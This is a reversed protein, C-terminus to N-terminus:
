AGEEEYLKAIAAIVTIRGLRSLPKLAKLVKGMAEAREDVSELIEGKLEQKTTM